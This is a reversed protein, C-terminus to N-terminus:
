NGFTANKYVRNLAVPHFEVGQLAPNILNAEAKTYLPAIVAEKLVLEEAQYMAEWRADYDSVYAGSTCDKILQDYEANSWFGYNNATNTVWMGLYTMPDAYDPGWRTLAICYDDNQMKELREAKTMAQLDITVGPLAAEVQEKIAQAVKAVEDGENNGYIMTFQFSDKGLEEKATEYFANAKEVDFGIYEAFRTQDASFDEGTTASAAFQPPVSTYTALSGDMVYNDVLSERDIANTIALRLNVNALSGDSSPNETQSFTVYWMYGAGIVKLNEALEADDKVAAVQDGTIKAIDLNKSKYGTLAQDSSGVVQYTISNLSVRDADYYDPNKVVTMSAAGPVYDDLMFAGNSLFTYPSTGYEGDGLSEYFAQNIPYFTPFYMLSPFFSVPVELEVQLTKDDLSTVGLTEPDAGEYLIADANKVAGVSSDFMYNYELNATMALKWAYEFDHATVPEGNTWFADDRLHFTYTCGDESVDWSEAVAPVAAGDADMQTLGDICDAIIEFSDGDTALNTDLSMVNTAFMVYIDGGQDASVAAAGFLTAIMMVSLLAVLMKRFKKM